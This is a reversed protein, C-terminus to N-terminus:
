NNRKLVMREKNLELIEYRTVKKSPWNAPNDSGCCFERYDFWLQYQDRDFHWIGNLSKFRNPLEVATKLTDSWVAFSIDFRNPWGKKEKTFYLLPYTFDSWINGNQFVLTDSLFFKDRPIEPRLVWHIDLIKLRKPHKQAFGNVAAFVLIVLLLQRM